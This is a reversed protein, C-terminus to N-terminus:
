RSNSIRGTLQTGLVVRQCNRQFIDALDEEMERPVWEEPNYWVVTM